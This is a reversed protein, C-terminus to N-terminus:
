EEGGYQGYFSQAPEMTPPIDEEEGAFVTPSDMGGSIVFEDEEGAYTPAPYAYTEDEEEGAYVIPTGAQATVIIGQYEGDGQYSFDGVRPAIITPPAVIVSTSAIQEQVVRSRAAESNQARMAALRYGMILDAAKRKMREEEIRNAELTAALNRRQVNAAAAFKQQAIQETRRVALASATITEGGDGGIAVQTTPTIIAPAPRTVGPFGSSTVVTSSPFFLGVPPQVPATATDSFLGDIYSQFDFAPLQPFGGGGEEGSVFRNDEDPKPTGGRGLFLLAGLGALLLFGANNAM